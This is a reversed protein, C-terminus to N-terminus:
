VQAILLVCTFRHPIRSVKQAVVFVILIIIVAVISVISIGEIFKTLELLYNEASIRTVSVMKVSIFLMPASLVNCLVLSAAIVDTDASFYQNAIVYVGAATPIIGYLFGFDSLDSEKRDLITVFQRILFPLIVLKIASLVTPIIAQAGKLNKANGVMRLGLSFLSTACLCRDFVDFVCSIYVPVGGPVFSACIGLITMIIIPSTVIQKFIKFIVKITKKVGGGTSTETAQNEIELFVFGIPNLLGYIIPTVLFLYSLYEPHSKSYLLKVLSVGIAFDSSMICFISFVGAKGYNRPRTM